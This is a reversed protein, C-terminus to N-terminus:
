FFIERSRLISGAGLLGPFMLRRGYIHVVYGVILIHYGVERGSKLLLVVVAFREHVFRDFDIDVGRVRVTSQNFLKLCVVDDVMGVLRPAFSCVPHYQAVEMVGNVRFDDFALELAQSVCGAIDEVDAM